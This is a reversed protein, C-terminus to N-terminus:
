LISALLDRLGNDWFKLEWNAMQYHRYFSEWEFPDQADQFRWLENESQGLLEFVEIELPCGAAAKFKPAPFFRQPAEVSGRMVPVPALEM